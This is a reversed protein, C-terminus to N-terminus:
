YEDIIYCFDKEKDSFVAKAEEAIKTDYLELLPMAEEFSLYGLLLQLFHGSSISFAPKYNQRNGNCDWVGNNEAIIDDRIEVLFSFSLELQKLLMPIHIANDIHNDNYKEVSRIDIININNKNLLDHISINM